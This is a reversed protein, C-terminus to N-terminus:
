KHHSDAIAPVTAVAGGMASIYRELKLVKNELIANQFKLRGNLQTVSNLKLTLQAM